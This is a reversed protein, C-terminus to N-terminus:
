LEIGTTLGNDFLSTMSDNFEYDDDELLCWEVGDVVVGKKPTSKSRVLSAGSTHILSYGVLSDGMSQNFFAFPVDKVLYSFIVGFLAMLASIEVTFASGIFAFLLSTITTKILTMINNEQKQVCLYLLV